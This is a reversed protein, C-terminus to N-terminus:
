AVAADQMGRWVIAPEAVTRSLKTEYVCACVCAPWACHRLCPPHAPAQGGGGVISRVQLVYYLISSVYAPVCTNAGGGDSVEVHCRWYQYFSFLGTYFFGVLLPRPGLNWRLKLDMILTYMPNTAAATGTKSARAGTRRKGKEGM